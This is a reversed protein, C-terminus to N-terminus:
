ESDVMRGRQDNIKVKKAKRKNKKNRKEKYRRSKDANQHSSKGREGEGKKDCPATNLIPFTAAFSGTSIISLLSLLSYLHNPTAENVKHKPEITQRKAAADQNSTTRRTEDKKEKKRAEAQGGERKEDQKRNLQRVHNTM